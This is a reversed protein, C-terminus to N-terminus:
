ILLEPDFDCDLTDVLLDLFDGDDDSTEPSISELSSVDVKTPEIKTLDCDMATLTIKDQDLGQNASGAAEVSAEEPTGGSLVPGGAVEGEMENKASSNCLPLGPLQQQTSQKLDTSSDFNAGTIKVAPLSKPQGFLSVPDWRRFM